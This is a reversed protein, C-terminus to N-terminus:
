IVWDICEWQYEEQLYKKINEAIENEDCFTFVYFAQLFLKTCEQPKREKKQKQLAETTQAKMLYLDGLFDLKRSGKTSNLGKNCLDLAKEYEKDQMYLKCALIAVKPYLRNNKEMSNHKDLYDLIQGILEKARSNDGMLIMREIIDILINLESNSLYYERIKNTKFGPVTYAIAEMLLDLTIEVKGGQLENLLAKSRVIFQKHVNGKSPATKEYAALLKGAEELNKNEILHKIEERKQYAEYDSDTLILEFQNPTKGLRELLTELLLSDADREGSEIRSLTAISCLGKCLRSQSVQYTERFYQIAAGIKNNEIEIAQSIM